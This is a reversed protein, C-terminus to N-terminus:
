GVSATILVGFHVNFILVYEDQSWGKLKRYQDYGDIVDRPAVKPGIAQTLKEEITLQQQLVALPDGSGEM